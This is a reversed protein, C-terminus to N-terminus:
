CPTPSAETCPEGVCWCYEGRGLCRSLYNFRRLCDCLPQFYLYRLPMPAWHGAPVQLFYSCNSEGLCVHFTHSLCRPLHGSCLFGLHSVLCPVWLLSHGGAVTAGPQVRSRGLQREKAHQLKRAGQRSHECGPETSM